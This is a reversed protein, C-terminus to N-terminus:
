SILSRLARDLGPVTRLEDLQEPRVWKHETHEWDLQVQRERAQFLFPHITWIVNGDRVRMTPASAILEPDDISLEERIEKLATEQATDGDEIHGSVGAWHRQFTGVKDSRKLVLIDEGHRLFCTVVEIERVDPLEVTGATGDVVCTDGPRLLELDIHDVLPVGSMVAGTAVIPEVSSNIIAAPLTGVREMELLVYSGVTSGKGCPFAFVAGKISQGNFAKDTLVGTSPAVDGLFSVPSSSLIIKGGARGRSIGRGRLIM